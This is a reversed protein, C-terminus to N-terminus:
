RSTSPHGVGHGGNDAAMSAAPRSTNNKDPNTRAEEKGLPSVVFTTAETELAHHLVPFLALLHAALNQPPNVIVMGSGNLRDSRIEPRYIFEAVLAERLGISRLSEHFRWLAPRDKVPYWLVLPLMPAKTKVTRVAAVLADIEDVKEFPPDILVLGRRETFPLLASLAEYGDRKHVHAQPDDRFLRRLALSDEPHTECAILRDHERLLRRTLVPSGAYFRLIGDPNLNRLVRAYSALLDNQGKDQLLARAWLKQIGAAAEGTKLAMGDTLDYLGCGAHTDLVAFAKEKKKLHDLILALTAHKVVDCINGAHYIHRYNV